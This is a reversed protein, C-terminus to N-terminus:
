PQVVEVAQKHEVLLAKTRRRERAVEEFAHEPKRAAARAQVDHANGFRLVVGGDIELDSDDPRADGEADINASDGLYAGGTRLVEAPRDPWKLYLTNPEQQRWELGGKSKCSLPM